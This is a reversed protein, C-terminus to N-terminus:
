EVYRLDYVYSKHGKKSVWEGPPPHDGQDKPSVSWPKGTIQNDADYAVWGHDPHRVIWVDADRRKYGPQGDPRMARHFHYVLGDNLRHLEFQDFSPM